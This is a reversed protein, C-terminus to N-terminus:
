EVPLFCHISLFQPFWSFLASFRISIQPLVILFVQFSWVKFCTLLDGQLLFPCFLHQLVCLIDTVDWKRIKVTLYSVLICWIPETNSSHHKLEAFILNELIQIQAPAKCKWNKPNRKWQWGKRVGGTSLSVTCFFVATAEFLWHVVSAAFPNRPSLPSILFM